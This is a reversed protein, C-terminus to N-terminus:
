GDWAALLGPSSPRGRRHGRGSGRREGGARVPSRAAGGRPHQSSVTRTPRSLCPRGRGSARLDGLRRHDPRDRERRARHWATCCANRRLYPHSWWRAAPGFGNVSLTSARTCASVFPVVLRLVVLAYGAERLDVPGEREVDRCLWRVGATDPREEQTRALASDAFDVAHMEYGLPALHLSLAGTGCGM